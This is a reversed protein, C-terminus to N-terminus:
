SKVAIGAALILAVIAVVKVALLVVAVVGIAFFVVGNGINKWSIPNKKGKRQLFPSGGFLIHVSLSLFGIVLVKEVEDSVYPSDLVDTLVFFGLLISLITLAYGVIWKIVQETKM